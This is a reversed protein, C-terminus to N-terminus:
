EVVEGRLARQEEAVRDGVVGLRHLLVQARRPHVRIEGREVGREGREVREIWRRGLCRQARDRLRAADLRAHEYMGCTYRDRSFRYTWPQELDQSQQAAIANM